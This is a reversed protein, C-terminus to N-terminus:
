GQVVEVARIRVRAAAVGLMCLGAALPLFVALDPPKISLRQVSGRRRHVQTVHVTVGLANQQLAGITGGISLRQITQGRNLRGNTAIGWVMTSIIATVFFLGAYAAGALLPTRSWASIGVLLSAHIAAPAAAAVLVRLILWPEDRLFGQGTYNLLCYLYFVVAPALAVGYVALFIGMWKGVLYDRKTLPKSLYVQLANTRNDLAISGAGVVVAILFLWLGQWDMAQRFLNAFKQGQTQDFFLDQPGSPAQGGLTNQVYLIIGVVFYPLLSCCVLAWFWWRTRLYRLRAVAIIWWRWSRLVLPGDYTRYTLDEIPM